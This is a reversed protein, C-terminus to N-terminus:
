RQKVRAARKTRVPKTVNANADKVSAAREFPDRAAEVVNMPRVDMFDSPFRTKDRLAFFDAWAGETPRTSLVIDGTVPDKRIFVEAADVRFQKPLRVAQSNGNIFIRATHM